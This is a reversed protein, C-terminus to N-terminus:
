VKNFTMTIQGGNEFQNWTLLTEGGNQTQTWSTGNADATLSISQDGDSMWGRDVYVGAEPGFNLGGQMYYVSPQQWFRLATANNPDTTTWSFSEGPAIAHEPSYNNVTDLNYDTNNYITVSVQWAM